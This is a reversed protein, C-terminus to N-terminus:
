LWASTYAFSLTLSSGSGVDVKVSNIGPQLNWWSGSAIFTSESGNVRVRRLGFNVEWTETGVGTRTLTLTKSQTNNVITANVLSTGTITVTPFSAVPGTNNANQSVNDALVLTTADIHMRPDDAAWQLQYPMRGTRRGAEVDYKFGIPKVNIYKASAGPHKFWWKRSFNDLEPLMIAKVREVETDITAPNAYLTGEAILIRIGLWKVRVNGGHQGQIEDLIPNFDPLDLGQMKHVDWFPLAESVPNLELLNTGTGAKDYTYTYDDTPPVPM